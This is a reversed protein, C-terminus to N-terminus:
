NTEHTRYALNERCILQIVDFINNAISRNSEIEKMRLSTVELNILHSIDKNKKTRMHADVADQHSKTMENRQINVTFRSSVGRVLKCNNYMGFDLCICCHLSVFSDVIRKSNGV